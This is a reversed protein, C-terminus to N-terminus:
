FHRANRPFSTRAALLNETMYTKVLNKKSLWYMSNPKQFLLEFVQHVLLVPQYISSLPHWAARSPPNHHCSICWPLIIKSISLCLYEPHWLRGTEVLFQLFYINSFFVLKIISVRFIFERLQKHELYSRFTRYTLSYSLWSKQIIIVRFIWVYSNNVYPMNKSDMFLWLVM